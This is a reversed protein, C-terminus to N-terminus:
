ASLRGGHAQRDNRCIALRWEWATPSTTFFTEFIRDIDGPAFVRALIRSRLLRGDDGKLESVVRSRRERDIVTEMADIADTIRNM